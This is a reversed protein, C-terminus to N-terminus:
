CWLATRKQRIHITVYTNVRRPKAVHLFTQQQLFVLILSCKSSPFKDNIQLAQKCGNKINHHHSISFKEKENLFSIKPKAIKPDKKIKLKM